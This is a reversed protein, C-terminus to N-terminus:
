KHLMMMGAVSMRALRINRVESSSSTEVAVHQVDVAMSSSLILLVTGVSHSGHHM